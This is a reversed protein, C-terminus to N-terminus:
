LIYRLFDNIRITRCKKGDFEIKEPFMSSILKQKHALPSNLYTQKFNELHHFANEVLGMYESDSTNLAYINATYDKIPFSLGALLTSM